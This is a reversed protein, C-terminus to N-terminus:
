RRRWAALAAVVALSAAAPEPVAASAGEGVVTVRRRGYNAAWLAYDAPTHTVGLGDRYVTYDAADVVGDANFDGQLPGGVVELTMSNPGYSVEWQHSAPLDYADFSGGVDSYTLVQFAAGVVPSFPAGGGLAVLEVRLTGALAASGTLDILDHQTGPTMGGIQLDVTAASGLTLRGDIALTGVSDGPALAGDIVEVQGVIPGSGTRVSGSGTLVGGRVDIYQADVTANQLRLTGGEELTVGSFVTLRGGPAVRLTMTSAGSGAAVVDWAQQVGSVVAEKAGLGVPALRAASLLTPTAAASWSAGASWTGSAAATTWNFTTTVPDSIYVGASAGGGGVSPNPDIVVNRGALLNTGIIGEVINGPDAPNTVDLVLVPVNTATVNGGLAPITFSDIFFGPIDSLVGGSGVVSVTFEPEDTTVDFGLLLANFQSLVTVSAGTDFFFQRTGLSSGGNTASANLFLAGQLVTPVTPNEEPNDLDFNQINPLYTPPQAFSSGPNLALPAKRTIGNGGSGRPLFDIAPTRVTRGGLEFVQPSDNRIRTAYQGAFPLGVINPLPSEAPLTITSTNTQGSLAANNLTLAAGGATRSQLGAVYLGFPDNIVAELQGTAGGITIVETGRFGDSEGPYARGLQFDDFAEATVLSFGAGTDLLAVGYHPSGVPGLFDGSPSTSPFPFFNFDEDFEDTLAVGVLPLFGDIPVQASATLCLSAALAVGRLFHAPLGDRHM